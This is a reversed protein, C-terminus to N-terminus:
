SALQYADLWPGAIFSSTRDIIYRCRSQIEEDNPDVIEALVKLGENGHEEEVEGGHWRFWDFAAGTVGYHKELGEGIPHFISPVVAEVGVNFCAVGDVFPRSLCCLEQWNRVHWTAWYPEWAWEPGSLIREGPGGLSTVARSLAAPHNHESYANQLLETKLDHRYIPCRAALAAVHNPTSVLLWLVDALLRMLAERPLKGSHSDVVVSHHRVADLRPELLEERITDLWTAGTSRLYTQPTAM